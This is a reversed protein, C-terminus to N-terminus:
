DSTKWRTDRAEYCRQIVEGEKGTEAETEAGAEGEKVGQIQIEEGSQEGKSLAIVKLGSALYASRNRHGCPLSGTRQGFVPFSTVFTVSLMM